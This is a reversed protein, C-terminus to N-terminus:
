GRPNAFTVGPVAGARVRVKPGHMPSIELITDATPKPGKWFKQLFFAIAKRAADHSSTADVNTQWARGDRTHM